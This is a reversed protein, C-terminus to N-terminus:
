SWDQDTELGETLWLPVFGQEEKIPKSISILSMNLQLLSSDTVAKKLVSGLFWLYIKIVYGKM